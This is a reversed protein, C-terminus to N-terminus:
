GCQAEVIRFRQSGWLFQVICETGNAVAFGLYDNEAEVTAYRTNGFHDIYQLSVNGVADVDFDESATADFTDGAEASSMHRDTGVRFAWCMCGTFTVGCTVSPKVLVDSDTATADTAGDAKKCTVTAPTGPGYIALNENSGTQQTIIYATPSKPQNDSLPFRGRQVVRRDTISALNARIVQRATDFDEQSNFGYVAM